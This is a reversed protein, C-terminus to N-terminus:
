RGGEGQDGKESLNYKCNLQWAHEWRLTEASATGEGRLDLRMPLTKGRKLNKNLRRISLPRERGGSKFNCGLGEGRQKSKGDKSSGVM